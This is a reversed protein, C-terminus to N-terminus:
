EGTRGLIFVLVWLRFGMLYFVPGLHGKKEYFVRGNKRATIAEMM